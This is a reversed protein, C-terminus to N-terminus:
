HGIMLWSGVDVLWSAFSMHLRGLVSLSLAARGTPLALCRRCPCISCTLFLQLALKGPCAEMVGSASHRLGFARVGPHTCVVVWPLRACDGFSQPVRVALGQLHGQQARLGFRAPLVPPGMRQEV